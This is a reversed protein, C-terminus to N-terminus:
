SRCQSVDMLDAKAPHARTYQDGVRIEIRDDVFQNKDDLRANAQAIKYQEEMDASLWVVSDNTGGNAPPEAVYPRVNIM